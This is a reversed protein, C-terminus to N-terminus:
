SARTACSGRYTSPSAVTFRTNLMSGPVARPSRTGPRDAPRRRDRDARASRARASPPRLGARPSSTRCRAGNGRARSSCDARRSDARLSGARRLGVRIRVHQAHRERNGAARLAHDLLGLHRAVRRQRRGLERREHHRLGALREAVGRDAGIRQSDLAVVALASERGHLHGRLDLPALRFGAALEHADPEHNGFAHARDDVGHIKLAVRGDIGLRQPARNCRRRALRIELRLNGLSASLM